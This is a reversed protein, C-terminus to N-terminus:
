AMLQVVILKCGQDRGTAVALLRGTHESRRRSLCLWPGVVWGTPGAFLDLQASGGEGLALARLSSAPAGEVDVGGNVTWLGCDVGKLAVCRAAAGADRL